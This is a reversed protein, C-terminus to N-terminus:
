RRKKQAIETNGEASLLLEIAQIFDSLTANERDVTACLFAKDKESLPRKVAALTADMREDSILM